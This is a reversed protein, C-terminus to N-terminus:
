PRGLKLEPLKHAFISYFVVFHRHEEMESHITAQEDLYRTAERLAPLLRDMSLVAFRSKEVYRYFAPPMFWRCGETPEHLVRETNFLLARYPKIALNM